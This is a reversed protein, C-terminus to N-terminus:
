RPSYERVASASREADASSKYDGVCSGYTLVPSPRKLAQWCKWLATPWPYSRYPVDHRRCFEEVLRAVAPYHVHSLSPFLHHEIQYQLGSCVLRGLMGTKFNVTTLTQVLLFDADKQSATLRVAEVPLHGPALVMFMAYGMLTIRIAYSVVVERPTAILLPLALNAALHLVLCGLDIWHRRRRTAPTRLCELLYRWGTRQMNFGNAALIVPFLIWQLHEYYLRKLGHAASVDHQTLALWPTFDADGDVGVVNPAPHHIAVHKRWWFTASLGLCFPYGFFTLAENVWRRDSTAFHSSTHTNTGIGMAGITSVMLGTARWLTEDATFVMTLGVGTVMVHWALELLIRVPAKRDLEREGLEQRLRLLAEATRSSPESEPSRSTSHTTM